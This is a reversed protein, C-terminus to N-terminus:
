FQVLISKLIGLWEKLEEALGPRLVDVEVEGLHLKLVLLYFTKRLGKSFKTLNLLQRHATNQGIILGNIRAEGCVLHYVRENLQSCQFGQVQGLILEVRLGCVM